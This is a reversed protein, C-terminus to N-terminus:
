KIGLSQVNCFERIGFAGSERGYGSNKVGGFPVRADSKLIDNVALMGVNFRAHLCQAKFKEKDGIWVLGLGYPSANVRNELEIENRYTTVMGIPSFLEQEQFFQSMMSEDLAQAELLFFCPSVFYGKSHPTELIATSSYSKQKLFDIHQLYQNYFQKHALPGLKSKKDLPNGITYLSLESEVALMFEGAKKQSVFFRKSAICSQGNNTLRGKVALQAALGINATEDVIFADNGGLELVSKKLYRGSLEGVIRGIKSSGTFTVAQVSKHSYIQETQSPDLVVTQLILPGNLESILTEFFLGVATTIESHKLLIVNGSLWAGVAFRFFQWVPYNWPMIAFVIGVPMFNVTTEPYHATLIQSQLFEAGYELYYDIQSISKEIELNSEILPKGMTQTILLALAPVHKQMSLKLNRLFDLRQALTFKKWVLYNTDLIEIKSLISEDTM